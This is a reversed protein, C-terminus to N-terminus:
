EWDSDESDEKEEKKSEKAKGVGADTGTASDTGVVDFSDDSSQRPSPAGSSLAIVGAGAPTSTGSPPAPAAEFSSSPRPTVTSEPLTLTATSAAAAAVTTLANTSPEEDDDWGIEEEKQTTAADNLLAKRREEDREIQYVRFFYRKWFTEEDLEGPVLSDKTEKLEGTEQGEVKEKWDENWHETGWSEWEAASRPEATPDVRLVGPTRRLQALLVEARTTPVKMDGSSRAASPGAQSSASFIEERREGNNMSASLGPLQWLDTGDWVMGEAYAPDNPVNRVAEKLFDKTEKYLAEGRVGADKLIQEGKHAYEQAVAEISNLDASFTTQFHHYQTTIDRSLASLSASTTPPIARAINSPLSAQLRDFLTATAARSRPTTTSTSAEGEAPAATSEVSASASVAPVIDEAASEAGESIANTDSKEELASEPTTVTPPRSLEQSIRQSAEQGLKSLETRAQGVVSTFDKKALDFASASQKRFGGWFKGLQGVVQQVEEELSQQPQGAGEAEPPPTSAAPNFFLDTNM